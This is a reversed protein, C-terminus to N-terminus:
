SFNYHPTYSSEDVHTTCHVNRGDDGRWVRVEIWRQTSQGGESDYAHLYGRPFVADINFPEDASLTVDHIEDCAHYGGLYEDAPTWTWINGSTQFGAVGNTELYVEQWREHSGANCQFHYTVTTPGDGCTSCYHNAMFAEVQMAPKEYVKKM